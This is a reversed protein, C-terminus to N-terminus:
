LKKYTNTVEYHAVPNSQFKMNVNNLVNEVTDKGNETFNRIKLECNVLKKPPHVKFKETSCNAAKWLAELM